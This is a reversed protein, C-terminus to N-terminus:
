AKKRRRLLAVAGSALAIMSAPEPVATANVRYALNTNAIAQSTGFGFGGGPNVQWANLGGPNANAYASGLIATQGATAFDNRAVVGIWYTGAALSINVPITVLASLATGIYATNVNVSGTAVTQSGANGTLNGAGAAISSYIEVSYSQISSFSTFGNYGIMGAEVQTLTSASGLTFDDIAAIDYQSFSAEFRQAAYGTQNLDAGNSGIQDMVVVAQSTAVMGIACMVTSIKWSLKM